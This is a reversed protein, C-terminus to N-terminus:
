KITTTGSTTGVGDVPMWATSIGNTNARNILDPEMTYQPNNVNVKLIVGRVGVVIPREFTRRLGINSASVTLVRVSGGIKDVTDPTELDRLKKALDFASDGETVDIMEAKTGVVTNTTGDSASTNTTTTTSNTQVHTKLLGLDKLQGLEAATIPRASVSAGAATKREITIDMSRAFYIESILALYIKNEMLKASEEMHRKLNGRICYEPNRMINGLIDQFMAYAMKAGALNIVSNTDARLCMLGNVVRFFHDQYVEQLLEELTMGYSEANPISFHVARIDSRNFNFSAMIGEIPIVASLSAQDVHTINFDPFSVQRLRAVSGPDFVSKRQTDEIYTAVRTLPVNTGSIVGNTSDPPYPRQRYYNAEKLLLNNWGLNTDGLYEVHIGANGLGGIQGVAATDYPHLPLAYVDGVVIDERPPYVPFIGMEAMRKSWERYVQGHSDPGSCCSSMLLENATLLTILLFNQIKM